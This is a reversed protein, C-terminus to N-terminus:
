PQMVIQRLRAANSGISPAVAQLAKKGVNIKPYLMGLFDAPQEVMEGEHLLEVLNELTPLEAVRTYAKGLARVGHADSGSWVPVGARAAWLQMIREYTRNTSRANSGEAADIGVAAHLALVGKYTAGKRRKDLGHPLGVLGGQSRIAQGAEVISLGRPIQKKLGWGLIETKSGDVDVTTIEEGVIVHGFYQAALAFTEPAILNHDTIAVGDLVGRQLIAEYDDFRTGGDWSAESHTHLDIRPM